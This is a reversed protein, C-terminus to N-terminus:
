VDALFCLRLLVALLRHSLHMLILILLLNPLDSIALVPHRHILLEEGKIFLIRNLHWLFLFDVSYAGKDIALINCSFLFLTICFRSIGNGALLCDLHICEPLRYNSLEALKDLDTHHM